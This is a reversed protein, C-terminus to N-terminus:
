ALASLPLAGTPKRSSFNMESPPLPVMNKDFSPCAPKNPATALVRPGTWVRSAVGSESQSLPMFFSSLFVAAHWLMIQFLAIFFAL